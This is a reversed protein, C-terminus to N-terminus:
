LKWAWLAEPGKGGADEVQTGRAGKEQSDENSGERRM